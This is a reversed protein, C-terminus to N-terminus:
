HAIDRRAFLFYAAAFGVVAIGALVELHKAPLPNGMILEFPTYYRFPSLWAVAEAPKWLRGVYDLLFTGLALFGALAGAIARRRSAAGIAMAIASWSLMLLGLNEVLSTILNATPWQANTPGLTILGLWTGTMMMVLLIATSLVALIISRTIIWHRALPRALILDIFGSEIEATPTTALAISVAILSSMVALHFYGVCVIGAFSMFSAFAPGMIERVFPPLLASLQEFGGSNHISRAVLILVLQFSGLLLGM